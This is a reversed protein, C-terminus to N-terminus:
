GSDPDWSVYSVEAANANPTPMLLSLFSAKSGDEALLEKEGL